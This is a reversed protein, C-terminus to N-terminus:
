NNLYNYKFYVSKYSYMNKDGTLATIVIRSDNANDKEDTKKIIQRCNLIRALEKNIM